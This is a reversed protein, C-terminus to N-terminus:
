KTEKITTTRHTASTSTTPNPIRASAALSASRGIGPRDIPVLGARRQVQREKSPGAM